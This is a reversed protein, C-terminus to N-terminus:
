PPVPTGLREMISQLRNRACNEVGTPSNIVKASVTKLWALTEPRRGMSLILDPAELSEPCEPSEPAGVADEGIINVECGRNQLRHTVAELIARDKDISNPSFREARTIALVKM